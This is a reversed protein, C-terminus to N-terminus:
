QVPVFNLSEIVAVGEDSHIFALVESVAGQAPKRTVINLPRTIPYNGETVNAITPKAGELTLLKIPVGEQQAQLAAGISVYGIGSRNGAVTKLGQQNDGIIIDPRVQDPALDLYRLFLELTSRGAAKNVVVIPVDSIGGVDGWDRAEGRYIKILQIRDLADVPNDRHTIVAIGDHAITYAHLVRESPKLDRSVMGMDCLGNIMDAVGRSSGGTQVDIRAGPHAQEYKRALEAMVPAVTSSGTALLRLKDSAHSASFGIWSVVFVLATIRRCDFFYQM